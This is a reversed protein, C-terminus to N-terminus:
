KQPSLNHSLEDRLKELEENPYHSLIIKATCNCHLTLVHLLLYIETSIYDMRSEDDTPWEHRLQTMGLAFMSGFITGHLIESSHRYISYSAMAMATGAGVGHKEAVVELKKYVSDPSWSNSEKGKKTTFSDIAEKLQDSVKVKGIDSLGVFIKIDGIELTRTLDRYSKQHAHKIASQIAENGKSSLYGINLGLEFIMRALAFCDRLRGYESLILLSQMSEIMPWTLMSFMISQSDKKDPLESNLQELLFIHKILSEQHFKLNENKIFKNKEKM